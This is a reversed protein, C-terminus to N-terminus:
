IYVAPKEYGINAYINLAIRMNKPSYPGIVWHVVLFIRRGELLQHRFGEYDKDPQMFSHHQVEVMSRALLLARRGNVIPFQWAHRMPLYWSKPEIRGEVDKMPVSIIDAIILASSNCQAVQVVGFLKDQALIMETATTLKTTDDRYFNCVPFAKLM